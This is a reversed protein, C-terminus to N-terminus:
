FPRAFADKVEDDPAVTVRSTAKGQAESAIRTSAADSACRAAM